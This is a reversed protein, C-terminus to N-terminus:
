RYIDFDFFVMGLILYIFPNQAYQRNDPHAINSMSNPRKQGKKTVIKHSQKTSEFIIHIKAATVFENKNHRLFFLYDFCLLRDSHPDLFELAPITADIEIGIQVSLMM